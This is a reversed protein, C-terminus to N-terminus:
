GAELETGFLILQSERLPPLGVEHPEGVTDTCQRQIMGVDEGQDRGPVRGRRPQPRRQAAQSNDLVEEGREDGFSETVGAGHGGISGEGAEQESM